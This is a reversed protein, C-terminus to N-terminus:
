SAKRRVEGVALFLCSIAILAFGLFLNGISEGSGEVLIKWWEVRTGAGGMFVSSTARVTGIMGATYGAFAGFLTTRILANAVAQKKATQRYAFSVAAVLALLGSPLVLFLVITGAEHLLRADFPYM